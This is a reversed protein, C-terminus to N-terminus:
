TIDHHTSLRPPSSHWLATSPSTAPVHSNTRRLVPLLHLVVRAQGLVRPNAACCTSDNNISIALAMILALSSETFRKGAGCTVTQLFIVAKQNFFPPPIVLRSSFLHTRLARASLQRASVQITVNDSLSQQRQLAIAAATPRHTCNSSGDTPSHCQARFTSPLLSRSCRRSCLQLVLADIKYCAAAAEVDACYTSLLLPPPPPM